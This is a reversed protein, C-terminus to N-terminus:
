KESETERFISDSLLAGVVADCASSLLLRQTKQEGHLHSVSLVSSSFVMKPGNHSSNHFQGDFSIMLLLPFCLLFLTFKPHPTTPPLAPCIFICGILTMILLCCDLCDQAYCLFWVCSKNINYARQSQMTEAIILIKSYKCVEQM